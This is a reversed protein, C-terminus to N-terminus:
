SKNKKKGPENGYGYSYNGYGYGYQKKNIHADNLLICLHKFKKEKYFRELEPLFRRDVKGERVVYITTDAVRNVIGADAVAQAPVSDIVVYDYRQKLEEILQELRESLLLESPNPPTAGAPLLDVNANTTDKVILQDLDTVGGQLYSTLGHSHRNGSLRSQTRKRIDADVLVVKKGSLALTVAFNRSIFTKGEGAMTSTFMLVQSDKNIFGLNFRAVRFAENVSDTKQDGVVIESDDGGDKHHPVEGVIPITTFNEIDKRGRVTMNLLDRVYFFAFPLLIGILLAVLLIVKSRPSIPANSGFPSEIVRINAETIALQLATEERKNLLYTYLTEKINQQRSIDIIDKEKQPVASLNYSLGAEEQKARGLQVNLSSLYAGTSAIIASRMQSLAEELQQVRKHNEGAGEFLRNRELMAENYKSIQSQIGADTLGGLSPILRNGQANSRLDELLFQVVGVQSELQISRQRAAASQQLFANADEKLSTLRNAQKYTALEGEVRSLDKAIIQIREDIFEATSKAILNKDIIINRKYAELVANLIDEARRINHDTFTLGVLTSEKDVESASLRSGYAYAAAEVTRRSVFIEKGDFQKIYREDPVFTAPGFPTKVKTNLPVYKDFSQEGASTVVDYVHVKDGAVKATFRFPHETEVSDFQVTFPKVDYLNLWRLRQKYSYTVDLHLQRVVEKMIQHSQIIYVENKVSSGMMVGNLQMLADTGGRGRSGSTGDDKVLMVASRKYIRPQMALYVRGLALCLLVSAVFWKWHSTFIDVIDRLSLMDEAEHIENNHQLEM